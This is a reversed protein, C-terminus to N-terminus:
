GVQQRRDLKAITDCIFHTERLRRYATHWSRNKCLHEFRLIHIELRVVDLDGSDLGPISSVLQIDSAYYINRFAQALSDRLVEYDRVASGCGIDEFDIAGLRRGDFFFNDLTVDGFLLTQEGIIRAGVITDAVDLSKPLPDGINTSKLKAKIRKLIGATSHDHLPTQDPIDLCHFEDLWALLAKLGNRAARVRNINWRLPNKDIRYARKIWNSLPEGPMERTVILGADGDVFAIEAAMFANGNEAIVRAARLGFLEREFAVPDRWIKAFLRPSDPSDIQWVENRGVRTAFVKDDLRVKPPNDIPLLGRLLDYDLSPLEDTM